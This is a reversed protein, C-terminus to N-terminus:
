RHIIKEHYYKIEWKHAVQTYNKWPLIKNRMHTVQTNNKWPLIKNRM